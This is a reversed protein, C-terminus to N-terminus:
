KEGPVPKTSSLKEMSAPPPLTQPQNLRMISFSLEQQAAPNRVPGSQYRDAARLSPGRIGPM